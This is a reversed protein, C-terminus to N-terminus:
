PARYLTIKQNVISVVCGMRARKTNFEPLRFLDRVIQSVELAQAQDLKLCVICYSPHALIKNWFDKHNVTVFTPSRATHLLAPIAPDLIRSQPRLDNSDRICM